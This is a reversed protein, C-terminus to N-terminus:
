RTGVIPLEYRSVLYPGVQRESHFRFGFREYVARLRRRERECDLRLVRRGARRAREAAWGLLATSVAGGAHRRLVALRHVYGAGADPLDPWFLPDELQFRVTGAAEGDCWAIGVMGRAVDEAIRTPDLEDLQWMPTGREELWRAAELLIASM